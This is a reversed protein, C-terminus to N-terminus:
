HGTSLDTTVDMFNMLYWNTGNYVWTTMDGSATVIDVSGGKLNTGTVDFTVAHAAIVNIIQGTTGSTFDTITVAGGTQFLNGTAVSPTADAAGFTVFTGSPGSFSAASNVTLAGTLALTSSGTVAGTLIITGTGNPDITLNGNTDDISITNGSISINSLSTGGLETYIESFNDNIKDFAARLQDGTGDNASTGINVAQYAM